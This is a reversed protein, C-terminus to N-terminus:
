DEDDEAPFIEQKPTKKKGFAATPYKANFEDLQAQLNEIVKKQMIVMEADSQESAALASLVAGNEKIIRRGAVMTEDIADADFTETEMESIAQAGSSPDESKWRKKNEAFRDVVALVAAEILYLYEMVEAQTWLYNSASLNGFIRIKDEVVELRATALRHFAESKTETM